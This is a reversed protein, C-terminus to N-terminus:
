WRRRAARPRALRGEPPVEQIHPEGERRCQAAGNDAASIHVGTIGIPLAPGRKHAVQLARVREAADCALPTALLAALHHRLGFKM